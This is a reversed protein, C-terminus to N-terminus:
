LHWFRVPSVYNTLAIIVDIIQVFISIFLCKLYKLGNKNTHCNVVDCKTNSIDVNRWRFEFGV